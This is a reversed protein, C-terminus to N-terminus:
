IFFINEKAKLLGFYVKQESYM